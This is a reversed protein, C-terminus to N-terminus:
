ETAATAPPHHIGFRADESPEPLESDLLKREMSDPHQQGAAYGAYYGALLSFSWEQNVKSPRGKMSDTYGSRYGYLWDKRDPTISNSPAIM